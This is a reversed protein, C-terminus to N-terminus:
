NIILKFDLLQDNYKTYNRPIIKIIIDPLTKQDLYYNIIVLQHM